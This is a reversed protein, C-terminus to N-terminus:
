DKYIYLETNIYLLFSSIFPFFNKSMLDKSPIESIDVPIKRLIKIKAHSVDIFYEKKKKFTSYTSFTLNGPESLQM